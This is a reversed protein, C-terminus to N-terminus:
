PTSNWIEVEAGCRAATAALLRRSGRAAPAAGGARGGGAGGAGAAAAAAGHGCALPINASKLAVLAFSHSHVRQIARKLHTFM